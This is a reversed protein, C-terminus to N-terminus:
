LDASAMESVFGSAYVRVELFDLQLILGYVELDFRAKVRDGSKKSRAPARAACRTYQKISSPEGGSM